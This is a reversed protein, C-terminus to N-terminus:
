YVELLEAATSTIGNVGTHTPRNRQGNVPVCVSIEIEEKYLSRLSSNSATFWALTSMDAKFCEEAALKLYCKTLLLIVPKKKNM